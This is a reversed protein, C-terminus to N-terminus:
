THTNTDHYLEVLSEGTCRASLSNPGHDSRGGGGKAHYPEEWKQLEIQVTDTDATKKTANTNTNM